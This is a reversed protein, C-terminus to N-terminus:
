AKSGTEKCMKKAMRYVRSANIQLQKKELEGSAVGSVISAHDAKTGPMVLDGGAAAIKCGIPGRHVSRKDATAAIIWDTMVIGEFGFENRLITEILGRHESTHTGNLLNYSTMLSVPQSERVCIGFGKLYIERMARESVQSNNAYRNVEMNNAAYHKITTGCGEHKQVGLTIAAAMKGSVLPDESYYEFNRGCRINRHINLAPALWLHVGFMEMEEGVIDGLSSALDENFSQAIATGIPISTAYQHLVEAGKKAKSPGAMLKMIFGVFGGAFEMMSEPIMSSGIGHAGKEDTYYDKALRLGAPGDSMVMSPYGKSLLQTTTEGAAGAVQTSANGIVALGKAKPDFNGVNLYALEEVSLNRIKDDIQHFKDNEAAAYDICVSEIDAAPLEIVPLTSLDERSSAKEPKWDEFDTEGLCNKVQKTVMTEALSIVGIATTNESSNGLRLIYNGKELVYAAKETDYSALDEMRFMVQVEMTSGPAIESTKVWGALEQYPKDLEGQPASVYLQLVEKGAIKGTNTVYAQVCITSKDRTIHGTSYSFDTYSLGFGFPFLPKKGVTNFYRYGVYIGEKYRTEDWDGFEGIQCYDEWASWTTTLKGSPNAKGLLIDALINGTMAGLQSLVLINKVTCVPTLDVPGGVNLVLMFKEYKSNLALIDKEETETLSIDGKAAARDNGEGSNRSLVYICADGEGDLPLSYEPEEMTKGMAYMMAMMHAEKAEKRIRSIWNQREVVLLEDYANLWEKTTITFGANELGEEINVSFRSNVEGSGTGGQVTHRVGNGFVAINGAEELPFKGDKKLFLTCEGACKRVLDLHRIEYKEM